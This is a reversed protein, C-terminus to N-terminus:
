YLIIDEERRAQPGRGPHLQEVPGGGGGRGGRQVLPEVRLPEREAGPGADRQERGAAGLGGEGAVALGDGRGWRRRSGWPATLPPPTIPPNPAYM